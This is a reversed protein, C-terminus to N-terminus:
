LIAENSSQQQAAYEFEEKNLQFTVSDNWDEDFFASPNFGNNERWQIDDRGERYANRIHKVHVSSKLHHLIDPIMSLVESPNQEIDEILDQKTRM